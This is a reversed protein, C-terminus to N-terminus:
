VRRGARSNRPTATVVQTYASVAISAIQNGVL